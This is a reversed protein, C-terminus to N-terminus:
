QTWLVPQPEGSSERTATLPNSVGALNFPALAPIVCGGGLDSDYSLWKMIVTEGGQVKPLSESVARTM